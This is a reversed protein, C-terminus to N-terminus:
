PITEYSQSVCNDDGEVRHRDFIVGNAIFIRYTEVGLPKGVANTLEV